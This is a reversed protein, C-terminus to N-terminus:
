NSEDSGIVFNELFYDKIINPDDYYFCLPHRSKNINKNSYKPFKVRRDLPYNYVTLDNEKLESYNIGLNSLLKKLNEDILDKLSEKNCNLFKNKFEYLNLAYNRENLLFLAEKITLENKINGFLEIELEEGAEKGRKIASSSYLNQHESKLQPSVSKENLSIYYQYKIYLHGGIEHLNIIVHFGYFILLSVSQNTISVNYNGYEYITTRDKNTNGLFSTDYIFFKLNEIIESIINEIMFFDIQPQTFIIERAQKYTKSQFIKILLKKWHEKTKCVFLEEQYYNPKIYKNIKWKLSDLSESCADNKLKTLVYKDIDIVFNDDVDSIKLKTGDKNLEFYIEDVEFEFINKNYEDIIEKKKDLNLPVFSEMWFSANEYNEFKYSSLFNIYDEFLLKDKMNEFVLNKFKENFNQDVKKLFTKMKKIYNFFKSKTLFYVFLKNKLCIKSSITSNRKIGIQFEEIIKKYEEDELLDQSMYETNFYVILSCISNILFKFLYNLYLEENQWTVKKTNNFSINLKLLFYTCSSILSIKEEDSNYSCNKIFDFYKLFKQRANIRSFEEFNAKYNEESICIEYKKVENEFDLKEYEKNKVMNKICVLYDVVYKEKTNDLSLIKRYLDIKIKNNKTQEIENLYRDIDKQYKYIQEFIEEITKDTSM